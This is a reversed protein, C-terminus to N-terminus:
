RDRYHDTINFNLFYNNITSKISELVLKYEPTYFNIM